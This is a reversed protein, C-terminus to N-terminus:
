DEEASAGEAGCVRCELDGERIDCGKAECEADMDSGCNDDACVGDSALPGGCLPCENDEDAM